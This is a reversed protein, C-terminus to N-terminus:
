SGYTQVLLENYFYVRHAAGPGNNYYNYAEGVLDLGLKQAYEQRLQQYKSTEGETIVKVSYEKTNASTNSSTNINETNTTTTSGSSYSKMSSLLASTSSSTQTTSTKTSAATATSSKGTDAQYLAQVLAWPSAFSTGTVFFTSTDVGTADIDGSGNGDVDIEGNIVENGMYTEEGTRSVLSNSSFGDSYGTYPNTFTAESSGVYEVNNTLLAGFNFMDTYNGAAMFVPVGQAAIQDAKSYFEGVSEIKYRLTLIADLQDSEAQTITGAEVAETFDPLYGEELTDKYQNYLETVDDGMLLSMIEAKNEALNDATITTQMATSVIDYDCYECLSVNVARYDGINNLITDMQQVGGTMVGDVIDISLRDVTYNLGLEAVQSEILSSVFEGHPMTTSTTNDLSMCVEDNDANFADIVAIKDHSGGDTPKTYIADGTPGTTVANPDYTYNSDYSNSSSNNNTGSGSTYNLFLGPLEVCLQEYYAKYGSNQQFLKPQQGSHWTTYGYDNVTYYGNKNNTPPVPTATTAVQSDAINYSTHTLNEIKMLDSM